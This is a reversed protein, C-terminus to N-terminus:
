GQEFRYARGSGSYLKLVNEILSGLGIHQGVFIEIVTAAYSYAIDIVVSELIDIKCPIHFGIRQVEILTIQLKLLNGFLCTNRTVSSPLSTDSHRIDIAFRTGSAVM